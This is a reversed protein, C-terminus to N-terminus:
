KKSKKSAHRRKLGSGKSDTKTDEPMEQSPSGSLESPSAKIAFGCFNCIHSDRDTKNGCQRYVRWSQSAEALSVFPGPLYKERQGANQKQRLTLLCYILSGCLAACVNLMIM